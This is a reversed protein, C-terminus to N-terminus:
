APEAAAPAMLTRGQWLGAVLLVLMIAASGTFLVTAGQFQYVTGSGIATVAAVPCATAATM